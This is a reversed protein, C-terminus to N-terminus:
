NNTEKEATSWCFVAESAFSDFLHSNEWPLHLLKAPNENILNKQTPKM